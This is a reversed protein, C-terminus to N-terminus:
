GFLVEEDPWVRREAYGKCRGGEADGAEQLGLEEFADAAGFVHTFAEKVGEGVTCADRGFDGPEAVSGAADLAFRSPNVARRHHAAVLFDAHPHDDHDVVLLDCSLQMPTHLIHAAAAISPRSRHNHAWRRLPSRSTRSIRPVLQISLIQPSLPFRSTSSVLLRLPHALLPLPPLHVMLKSVKSHSETSIQIQCSAPAESGMGSWIYKPAQSANLGDCVIQRRQFVLSLHKRRM